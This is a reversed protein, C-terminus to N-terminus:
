CDLAQRDRCDLSVCRGNGTQRNRQQQQRPVTGWHDIPTAETVDRSTIQPSMQLVLDALAASMAKCFSPLMEKQRANLLGKSEMSKFPGMGTGSSYFTKQPAGLLLRYYGVLTPKTELVVPTPFVYEDRIGASALLRQVRNPVYISLQTKLIRPDVRGLADSLADM